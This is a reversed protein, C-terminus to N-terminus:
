LDSFQILRQCLLPIFSGRFGSKYGGQEKHDVQTETGRM